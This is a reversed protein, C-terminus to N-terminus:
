EAVGSLAMEAVAGEVGVLPDGGGEGEEGMGGMKKDEGEEGEGEESEEDSTGPLCVFGTNIPKIGM